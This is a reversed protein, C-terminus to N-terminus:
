EGYPKEGTLYPKSFWLQFWEPTGPQINKERMINSIENATKSINSGMSGDGEEVPQYVGALQKIEEIADVKKYLFESTRPFKKGEELQEETGGDLIMDIIGSIVSEKEDNAFYEDPLSDIVEQAKPDGEIPERNDFQGMQPDYYMTFEGGEYTFRGYLSYDREVESWTYINGKPTEVQVKEGYQPFYGRILDGEEIQEPNLNRMANTRMKRLAKAEIQRVRERSKGIMDGVQMLDSDKGNDLGFRAIIVIKEIKTLGAMMKKIEDKHMSKMVQKEVEDSDTYEEPEGDVQKHRDYVDIETIKKEGVKPIKNKGTKLVRLAMESLEDFKDQSVKWGGEFRKFGLDLLQQNSYSGRLPWPRNDWITKMKPKHDKSKKQLESYAKDGLSEYIDKSIM